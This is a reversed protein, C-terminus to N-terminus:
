HSKAHHQNAKNKHYKAYPSVKDQPLCGILKDQNVRIWRGSNARVSARPLVPTELWAPVALRIALKDSPQSNIWGTPEPSESIRGFSLDFAAISHDASL